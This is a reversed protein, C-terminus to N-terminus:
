GLNNPFNIRPPNPGSTNHKPQMTTNATKGDGSKASETDSAWLVAVLVCTSDVGAAVAVSSGAAVAMATGAASVRVGLGNGAVSVGEGEGVAVAVRVGVAEGVDVRV